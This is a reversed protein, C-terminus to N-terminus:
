AAPALGHFTREPAERILHRLLFTCASRTVHDGPREAVGSIASDLAENREEEFTSQGAPAATRRKM